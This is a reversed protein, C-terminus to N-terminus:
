RQARAPLDRAARDVRGLGALDVGAVIPFALAVIQRGVKDAADSTLHLADSRTTTMGDLSRVFRGGPCLVGFLDFVALAPRSVVLAPLLTRNLYGISAQDVEALVSRLRGEADTGTCPTNVWVVRAGGASAIDVASRYISLIERDFEGDGPRLPKKAAGRPLPVLDVLGSSIVVVDPQFRAIGDAWFERWNLCAHSEFDRREEADPRLVLGCGYHALNWVVGQRREDAGV